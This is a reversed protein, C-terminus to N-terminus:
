GVFQCDWGDEILQGVIMRIQRDMHRARNKKGLIWWKVYLHQVDLNCCISAHTDDVRSITLTKDQSMLTFNM